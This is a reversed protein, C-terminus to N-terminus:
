RKALVYFAAVGLIRTSGHRVLALVGSRDGSVLFDARSAEAMALLFNDAPDSSRDVAPLRQIVLALERLDNIFRGVHAPVLRTRLSPRRVVDALEILQEASTVLDFQGLRWAALLEAPKGHPNLLGSLLVNTDLIVRM